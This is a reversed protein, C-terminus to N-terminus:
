IGSSSLYGITIYTSYIYLLVFQTFPIPTYKPYACITGISVFKQVNYCRAYEILELGMIANDYFFQGPSAINAGIGGVVAALHIVIDPTRKKYLRIIDDIKTLDFEKRTPAIIHKCGIRKLKAVIRTGLFGTGGTVLIKKNEINMM